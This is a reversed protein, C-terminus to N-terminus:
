GRGRAALLYRALLDVEVNVLSGRRLRGLTTVALTHPILAVEFGGPTARAVTLSVGDVAISGKEAVFRRLRAPLRFGVRAGAGERRVSVVAATTDVHGTVFHGGLERGARLPRELNVRDGPRSAGLRTRRLTEPSLDATLVGQAARVATLCTGDVAVSAGRAVRGLGPAAITLRFGGGRRGARRVLGTATVIGTFM